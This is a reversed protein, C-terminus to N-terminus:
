QPGVKDLDAIAANIAGGAARLSDALRKREETSMPPISICIRRLTNTIDEVYNMSRILEGSAPM